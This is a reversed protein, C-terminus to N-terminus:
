LTTAAWRNFIQELLGFTVPDFGFFNWDHVLCNSSDNWLAKLLYVHLM